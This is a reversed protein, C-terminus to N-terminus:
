KNKDTTFLTWDRGTRHTRGMVSLKSLDGFDYLSSDDGGHDLVLFRDAVVYWDWNSSRGKGVVSVQGARKFDLAFQGVDVKLVWKHNLLIKTLSGIIPTTQQRESVESNKKLAGDVALAADLNGAKTYELKLKELETLYKERIPKAIRELAAEHQSRLTSLREPADQAMAIINTGVFCLLVQSLMKNM